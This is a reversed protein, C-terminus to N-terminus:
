NYFASVSHCMGSSSDKGVKVKNGSFTRIFVNLALVLENQTVIYMNIMLLHYVPFSTMPLFHLSTVVMQQRSSSSGSGSRGSGPHRDGGSSTGGSEGSSVPCSPTWM